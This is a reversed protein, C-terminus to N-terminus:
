GDEYCPGDASERMPMPNRQYKRLKAKTSATVIWETYGNPDAPKNDYRSPMTTVLIMDKPHDNKSPDVNYNYQLPIYDEPLAAKEVKGHPLKTFLSIPDERAKGKNTSTSASTTASTPLPSSATGSSEKKAKTSNLLGRKMTFSTPQNINGYDRWSHGCVLAHCTRSM